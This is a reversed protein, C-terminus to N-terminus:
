MTNWQNKDSKRNSTTFALTWLDFETIKPVHEFGYVIKLNM